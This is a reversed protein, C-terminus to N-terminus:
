PTPFRAQVARAGRADLAFLRQGPVPRHRAYQPRTLYHLNRRDQRERSWTGTLFIVPQTALPLGDGTADTVVVYKPTTVPLRNLENAVDVYSKRLAAATRPSEAWKVFYRRADLAGICALAAAVAVAAWRPGGPDRPAPPRKGRPAVSARPRGGLRLALRLLGHLGVGALIYAAPAVILARLAHPIGENSIVAPALGIFLYSLLVVPATAPRRDRWSSRALEVLMLTVGVVFMVGVPWFLVPDGSLNHRWNVDGAYVFMGLTKVLNVLVKGWPDSGSFVSVESIRGTFSDPHELFYLGLPAAVVAAVGTMVLVGAWVARRRAPTGTPPEARSALWRAALAALLVLPIVRYAIYTYFGLGIMLGALAWTVLRRTEFARLLLYLGWVVFLPATIARFGLRSFNVHWFGTAMFFAAIAAVAWPAFLRRTLLYTGLVTLIGAVAAVVRLAFVTNGLLAVSIAQANIFLGERGFNAPYFVRLQGRELADVADIGNMAEDWYLGVPVGHLDWLRFGAGIAVVILIWILEFRRENRIM